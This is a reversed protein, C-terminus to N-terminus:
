REMTELDKKRLFSPNQDTRETPDERPPVPIIFANGVVRKRAVRFPDTGKGLGKYSTHAPAWHSGSWWAAENM